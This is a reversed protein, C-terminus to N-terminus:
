VTADDDSNNAQSYKTVSKRWIVWLNPPALVALISVFTVFGVPLTCRCMTLTKTPIFSADTDHSKEVTVHSSVYSAGEGATVEARERYDRRNSAACHSRQPTPFSQHLGPFPRRGM